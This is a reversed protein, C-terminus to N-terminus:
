CPWIRAIVQGIQRYDLPKWLMQHGCGRFKEAFGCASGREALVIFYSGREIFDQLCREIADSEASMFYAGDLFVVQGLRSTEKWWSERHYLFNEPKFGQFALIGELFTQILPDPSLISVEVNPQPTGIRVGTIAKEADSRDKDHSFCLDEAQFQKSSVEMM